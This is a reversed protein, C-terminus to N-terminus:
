PQIDEESSAALEYELLIAGCILLCIHLSFAAHCVTLLLKHYFRVICISLFLIFNPSWNFLFSNLHTKLYLPLAPLNQRWHKSVTPKTAPLADPRHHPAPMTTQRSLPASKYIAWNIGSGSVTEPKLLTWIPKVKRTGAWETTGSLPGNFPYIHPQQDLSYEM